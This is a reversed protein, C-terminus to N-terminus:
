GSKSITDPVVSVLERLVSTAYGGPALEFRLVLKEDDWEWEMGRPLLRLSRRAARVGAQGLASIVEVHRELAGNEVRAAERLARPGEKGPLPGSPHIDFEICRRELEADPMSCSFTSRSGDLVAVEGDTVRNWSGGVVRASLVENFLFSRVASLGISRRHRPVAKGELLWSLGLEVNGGGHGFRQPGFYNPVGQEAIIRLRRELGEFSGDLERVVIRFRNGRLTGRKLKRGHRRAQLITVGPIAWQEWDPDSAEQLGISFWQTTVARRDKMGAFSVDRAPAGSAMSFQRAVWETNANVKEVELWLHQGSGEPHVLPQELVRFDEPQLRIRGSLRPRGLTRSWDPLAGRGSRM